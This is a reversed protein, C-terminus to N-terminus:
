THCKRMIKKALIHTSFRVIKDKISSISYGGTGKTLGYDQKMKATLKKDQDKGVFAKTPDLGKCPLATIRRILMADISVREGLWLIDDHVLALLQRVYITNINNCGFHPVYLM